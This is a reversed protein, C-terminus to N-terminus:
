FMAYLNNLNFIFKFKFEFCLVFLCVSSTFSFMYDARPADSSRYVEEPTETMFPQEACPGEITPVWVPHLGDPYKWPFCDDFASTNATKLYAVLKDFDHIKTCEQIEPLHNARRIAWSSSGAGSMSFARKFLKRSKKNILQYQVSPGGTHPLFKM